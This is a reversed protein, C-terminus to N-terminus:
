GRPKKRQTPQACSILSNCLLLFLLLLLPLLLLLLHLLLAALWDSNLEALSQLGGSQPSPQLSRASQPSAPAWRRAGGGGVRVRVRVEGYREGEGVIAEGRLM